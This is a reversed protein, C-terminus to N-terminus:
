LPRLRLTAVAISGDPARSEFRVDVSAAGLDSVAIVQAFSGRGDATIDVTSSSQTVENFAQTASATAVIHVRSGPRTLGRVTFANGVRTGNAPELDRVFNTAAASVDDFSWSVLARRGTATLAGVDVRHPGPPIDFAPTFSVNRESIYSEPSVDRGDIRIHVSNPDVPEVFTASIQPRLGVVTTGNRPEERVLGLASPVPLTTRRQPTAAPIPAPPPTAVAVPQTIAVTRSSALYSVTAGLTQAVFRLPVLTRAGVVFAPSDLAVSAGNVVAQAEGVHLAITMAGRTANIAGGDFVVSAGLREFVGRLPVFVRGAREIPPQDFAIATGNVTVTVPADQAAVPARAAVAVTAALAACFLCTFRQM